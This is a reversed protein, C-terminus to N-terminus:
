GKNYENINNNERCINCIASFGNLTALALLYPAAAAILPTDSLATGAAVDLMGISSNFRRRAWFLSNVRKTDCSLSPLAAAAASLVAAAGAGAAAAVADAAVVAAGACDAAADMASETLSFWRSFSINLSLIVANLSATYKSVPYL